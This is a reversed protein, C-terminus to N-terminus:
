LEVDRMPSRDRTLDLGEFSPGSMLTKLLKSRIRPYPHRNCVTPERGIRKRWDAVEEIDIGLVDAAATDLEARVACKEMQPWPLLEADKLKRFVEELPALDCKAPDPLPVSGIQAPKYISYTLTKARANLLLLNGCTSNLFACWAKM